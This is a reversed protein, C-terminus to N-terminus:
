ESLELHNVFVGLNNNFEGKIENDTLEVIDALGIRRMIGDAFGQLQQNIVRGFAFTPEGINFQTWNRILDYIDRCFLRNNMVPMNGLNMFPLASPWPGMKGHYHFFEDLYRPDIMFPLITSSQGGMISEIIKIDDISVSKGKMVECVLPASLFIMEGPEMFLGFSGLCGSHNSFVIDNFPLDKFIGRGSKFIPFNKLLFLQEEDISWHKDRTIKNQVLSIKQFVRKRKYTALSIILMDALEKTVPKARYNFEVYSASGHIKSAHFRLKGYENGNVTEVLKTVLAVENDRRSFGQALTDYVKEALDNQFIRFENDGVLESLKHFLNDM